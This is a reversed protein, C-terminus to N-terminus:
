KWFVLNLHWASIKFSQWRCLYCFVSRLWIQYKVSSDEMLATWEICANMVPFVFFFITVLALVSYHQLTSITKYCMKKAIIILSVIYQDDSFMFIIPNWKKWDNSKLYCESSRLYIWLLLVLVQSKSHLVNSLVNFFWVFIGTM